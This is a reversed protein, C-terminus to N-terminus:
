CRRLALAVFGTVILMLLTSPEPVASINLLTDPLIDGLPSLPRVFVSDAAAENLLVDFSYPAQGGVPLMPPLVAGWATRPPTPDPKYEVEIKSFNLSVSEQPIDGSSDLAYSSVIVDDLLSSLYTTSSSCTGECFRLTATPFTNGLLVANAIDPSFADATRSLYVDTVKAAPGDTPIYRVVAFAISEVPMGLGIGPLDLQLEAHATSVALCGVVVVVIRAIRSM